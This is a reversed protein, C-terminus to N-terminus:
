VKSRAQNFCLVSKFPVTRRAPRLLIEFRPVKYRKTDGTGEPQVKINIAKAKWTMRLTKLSAKTELSEASDTVSPISM